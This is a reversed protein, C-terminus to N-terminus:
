DKKSVIRKFANKIGAYIRRLPRITVWVRSYIKYAVSKDVEIYKEGRYFGVLKAFVMDKRVGYELGVQGDGCCVFMGDKEGVIRHLVCQGNDRVYFPVDYKKLSNGNELAVVYIPTEHHKLMPRMSNGGPTFLLSGKQTVIEKYTVVQGENPTNKETM